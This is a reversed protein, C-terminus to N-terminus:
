HCVPITSCISPEGGTNVITTTVKLNLLGDVDPNPTSTRITMSPGGPVAPAASTTAASVVLAILSARLFSSLMTFITIVTSSIINFYTLIANEILEELLDRM